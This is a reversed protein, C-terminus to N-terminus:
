APEKHEPTKTINTQDALDQVTIKNNHTTVIDKVMPKCRGCDHDVGGTCTLYADRASTKVDLQDLHNNLEKDTVANCICVYM